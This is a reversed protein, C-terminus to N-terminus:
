AARDIHVSARRRRRGTSKRLQAALDEILTQVDLALDKAGYGDVVQTMALRDGLRLGQQDRSLTRAELFVAAVNAGPLVFIVNRAVSDRASCPRGCVPDRLLVYAAALVLLVLSPSSWYLVLMSVVLLGDITAACLRRRSEAKPYPSALSLSVNTLLRPYMLTFSVGLGALGVVAQINM